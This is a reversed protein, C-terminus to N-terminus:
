RGMHHNTRVLDNQTTDTTSESTTTTTGGFRGCALPSMVFLVISSFALIKKM